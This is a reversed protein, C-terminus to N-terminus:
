RTAIASASRVPRPNIDKLYGDKDFFVIAAEQSYFVTWYRLTREDELRKLRHKETV